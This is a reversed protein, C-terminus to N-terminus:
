GGIQSRILDKIYRQKNSITELFSIIDADTEKHCKVYFSRYDDKHAQDYRKQARKQAETM